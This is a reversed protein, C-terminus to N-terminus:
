RSGMQSQLLNIGMRGLDDDIQDQSLLTLPPATGAKSISSPLILPVSLGYTTTSRTAHHSANAARSMLPPAPTSEDGVGAGAGAGEGEQVSGARGSGLADVDESGRPQLAIAQGDNLDSGNEHTRLSAFYQNAAVAASNLQMALEKETFLHDISYLPAEVQSAAMRARADRFATSQGGNPTRHKPAPSEGELEEAAKRKGKHNGEAGASSSGGAVDEMEGPRHRTHRTKRNSQPGGPSASHSISFQNPHLLLASSDGIDLQEKERMLRNKKHNLLQIIRERITGSLQRHEEEALRLKYRTNRM